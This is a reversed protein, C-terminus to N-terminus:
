GGPVGHLGDPPEQSGVEGGAGGGGHATDASRAPATAVRSRLAAKKAQNGCTGMSCWRRTGPRSADVFLAGCTPGSCDRIRHVTPSTVLDLVDRAILSLTAEVPDDAHWVLGDDTALRPAPAPRAAARNVCAVAEPDCSAPGAPGRAATILAHVAERLARAADLHRGAPPAVAPATSPDAPGFQRVWAILAEADDLEEVEDPTGRRRLTRIFDLCLRGSGQRFRATRYTSAPIQPGM